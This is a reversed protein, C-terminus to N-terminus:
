KNAKLYEVIGEAVGEAMKQRSGGNRLLAVDKASTIFGLEVLASPMLSHNIVTFAASKVGRSRMGSSSMMSMLNNQISTALSRSRSVQNTNASYYTEIGDATRKPDANNHLSVFVVGGMSKALPARDYREIFIDTSRTLKVTYGYKERLYKEARKSIDLVVDKEYFTGNIAGPDKGGHGPDLVIIPSNASPKLTQTFAASIYGDKGNYKIKYFGNTTGYHSVQSAHALQGIVSSSLSAKSRVNLVDGPTNIYVTGKPAAEPAAPAKGKTLWSSATYYVKSGIHVTSWSSNYAKYSVATYKPLVMLVESSQHTKGFLNVTRNAYGQTLGDDPKTTTPPETPTKSTSIW